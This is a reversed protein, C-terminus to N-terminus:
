APWLQKTQSFEVTRSGFLNLFDIPYPDEVLIVVCLLDHIIIVHTQYEGFSFTLHIQWKALWVKSKDAHRMNGELRHM